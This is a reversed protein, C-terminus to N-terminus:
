MPRRALDRMHARRAAAAFQQVAARVVRIALERQEMPSFGAAKACRETVPWLSKECYDLFDAAGPPVKARLAALVPDKEDNMM